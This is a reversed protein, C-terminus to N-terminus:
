MRPRMHNQNICEFADAFKNHTRVSEISPSSLTRATISYECGDPGRRDRRMWTRCTADLIACPLRSIQRPIMMLNRFFSTTIVTTALSKRRESIETQKISKRALSLFLESLTRSNESLSLSLSLSLSNQSCSDLLLSPQSYSTRNDSINLALMCALPPPNHVGRRNRTHAYTWSCSSPTANDPTDSITHGDAEFRRATVGDEPSFLVPPIHLSLRPLRPPPLAALDTSEAAPLCHNRKWAPRKRRVATCLKCYAKTCAM